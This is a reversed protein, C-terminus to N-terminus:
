VDVFGGDAIINQGTIYSNQESALFLVARAIEAPDAFRRLPVQAALEDMEALSLISRTLETQVFGPSVTNVLVGYPALDLASGVTLGRLAYKTMTYLVRKPKSVCGFISAINVIRGYRHAMMLRSVERTVRWPGDVNVASLAEWDEDRTQDISNIRNIGANNVLVDVRGLAVVQACFAEVSTSVTFDVSLFRWNAPLADPRSASGTVIVDGGASAFAEAMAAGIGRTGGTVLIVRGEFGIKM